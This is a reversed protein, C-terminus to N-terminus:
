FQVTLRKRDKDDVALVVALEDFKERKISHVLDVWWGPSEQTIHANEGNPLTKIAPYCAINLYVVKNSYGLIEEVVWSLDEKAIHELVDTSIVADYKKAPLESYPEFGPDYLRLEVDHWLNRLGAISQGDPTKMHLKDYALGKGCGYDLLSNCQTSRILKNIMEIHPALSRGDFTEEAPKDNSVDGEAHMTQYMREMELYRPSPNQRSFQQM